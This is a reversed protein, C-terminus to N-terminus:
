EEKQPQPQQFLEPVVQAVEGMVGNFEWKTIVGQKLKTNLFEQMINIIKETKDM